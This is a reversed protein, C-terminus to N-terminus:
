MYKVLQGLLLNFKVNMKSNGYKHGEATGIDVVNESYPGRDVTGVKEQYVSIINRASPKNVQININNYSRDIYRLIASSPVMVRTSLAFFDNHTQSASQTDFPTPGDQKLGFQTGMMIAAAYRLISYIEEIRMFNLSTGVQVPGEGGGNNQLVAGNMYMAYTNIFYMKFKDLEAASMDYKELYNFFLDISDSSHMAPEIYQEHKSGYYKIGYNKVQIGIEGHLIDIKGHGAKGVKTAKGGVKDIILDKNGGFSTMARGLLLAFGEEGVEGLKFPGMQNRLIKMKKGIASRAMTANGDGFILGADVIKLLRDRNSLLETVGNIKYEQTKLWYDDTLGQIYTEIDATLEKFQSKSFHTGDAINDEILKNFLSYVEGTLLEPLFEDINNFQSMIKECYDRPTWRPFVSKVLNIERQAQKRIAVDFFAKWKDVDFNENNFYNAYSAYTSFLYYPQSDLNAYGGNAFRNSVNRKEM